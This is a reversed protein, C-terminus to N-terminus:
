DTLASSEYDDPGCNLGTHPWWIGDGFLKLAVYTLKRPSCMHHVSDTFDTDTIHENDAHTRVYM